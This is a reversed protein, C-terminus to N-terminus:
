SWTGPVIVMRPEDTEVSDPNGIMRERSREMGRVPEPQERRAPGLLTAFTKEMPLMEFWYEADDNGARKCILAMLGIASM